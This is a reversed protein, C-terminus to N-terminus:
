YYHRNANGSALTKTTGGFGDLVGVFGMEVISHGFTGIENSTQRNSQSLVTQSPSRATVSVGNGSTTLFTPRAQTLQSAQTLQPAQSVQVASNDIIIRKPLQNSLQLQQQPLQQQLQQQQLQLQQQQQRQQQQQIEPQVVVTQPQVVTVAQQLPPRVPANKAVVVLIDEKVPLIERLLKRQPIIRERVM